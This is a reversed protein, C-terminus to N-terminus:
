KIRFYYVSGGIITNQDRAVTSIRWTSAARVGKITWYFGLKVQDGPKAVLGGLSIQQSGKPLMWAVDAVVGLKDVDAAQARTLEIKQSRLDSDQPKVGPPLLLGVSGNPPMGAQSISLIIPGRTEAPWPLAMGSVGSGGNPASGADVVHLNRNAIHRSNPVLVWLQRENTMRISTELPDDAAEIIVLM